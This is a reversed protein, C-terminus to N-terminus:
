DHHDGREIAEISWQLSELHHKLVLPGLDGKGANKRLENQTARLWAVIANRELRAAHESTSENM